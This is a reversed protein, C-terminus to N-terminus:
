VLCKCSEVVSARKLSYISRSGEKIQAKLSKDPTREPGSSISAGFLGSTSSSSMPACLASFQAKSGVDKTPLASHGRIAPGSLVQSLIRSMSVSAAPSKSVVPSARLPVLLTALAPVDLSSGSSPSTNTASGSPLQPIFSSSLGSSEINRFKHKLRPPLAAPPKLCKLDKYARSSLSQPTHSSIHPVNVPPLVRPLLSEGIALNSTGRVINFPKPYGSNSPFTSAPVRVAPDLASPQSSSCLIHAVENSLLPRQLADYSDNTSYHEYTSAMPAMPQRREESSSVTATAQSYARGKTFKPPIRELPASSLFDRIHTLSSSFKCTPADVGSEKKIHMLPEQEDGSALPTSLDCEFESSPVDHRLSPTPSISTHRAKAPKRSVTPRSSRNPRPKPKVPSKPLCCLPCDPHPDSDHARTHRILGPEIKVKKAAGKPYCVVCDPHPNADHARTHRASGPLDSSTPLTSGSTRKQKKTPRASLASLIPSAARERKVRVEERASSTLQNSRLARCTSRTEECNIRSDQM